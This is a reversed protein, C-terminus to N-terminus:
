LTSPAPPAGYETRADELMEEFARQAAITADSILRAVGPTAMLAGYSMIGRISLESDLQRQQEKTMEAIRVTPKEPVPPVDSMSIQELKLDFGLLFRTDERHVAGEKEMEGTTVTLKVPGSQGTEGQVLRADLKVRTESSGWATSLTGNILRENQSNVSHVGDLALRMPPTWRDEKKPTWTLVASVSNLPAGERPLLDFKLQGDTVAYDDAAELIVLGHRGREDRRMQFGMQTSIAGRKDGESLLHDITQLADVRLHDGTEDTLVALRMTMEGGDQKLMDSFARERSIEVDQRRMADVMFDLYKSFFAGVAPAEPFPHNFIEDMKAADIRVEVCYLSMKEGLVETQVKAPEVALDVGVLRLIEASHAQQQEPTMKESEEIVEYLAAGLESLMNTSYPMYDYEEEQEQKLAEEMSIAYNASLGDMTYVAQEENNWVGGAFVQGAGATVDAFLTMADEDTAYVMQARVDVPIRDGTDMRAIFNEVTTRTAAAAVEARALAPALMMLVLVLAVARTSRNM